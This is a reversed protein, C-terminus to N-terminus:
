SHIPNLDDESRTVDVQVEAGRFLSTNGIPQQRRKKISDVSYARIGKEMMRQDRYNNGLFWRVLLLLVFYIGM